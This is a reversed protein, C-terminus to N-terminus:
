RASSRPPRPWAAPRPPSAASCAASATRCTASPASCSASRTTRAPRSAKACTAWRWGTAISAPRACRPSCAVPSSGGAPASCCCRWAPWPSPKWARWPTASAERAKLNSQIYGSESGARLVQMQEVLVANYDNFAAQLAKGQAQWDAEEGNSQSFRAFSEGAERFLEESRQVSVRAKDADGARAELFAGAMAIRARLLRAYAKQLQNNREVAVRNLSQIQQDSSRASNWGTFISLLLAAALAALVILMGTRIKLKSLM